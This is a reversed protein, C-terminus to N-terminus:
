RQSRNKRMPQLIEESSKRHKLKEWARKEARNQPTYDDEIELKGGATLTWKDNVWCDSNLINNQSTQM